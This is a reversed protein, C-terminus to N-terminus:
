HRSRSFLESAILLLGLVAVVSAAGNVMPVTQYKVAIGACAWVAVLVYAIDRVRFLVTAAIAGALAIKIITWAQADIGVDDWGLGIQVASLNAISAVTIWSTYISFPFYLVCREVLTASSIATNLTRYIKILSVLIVVMLLLSLVLLDSHWLVIWISNAACSIIFPLRISALLQNQRQAPLAQWVIFATLGIYILGWISFVYGAPTFFSPYKASVEGTTQGGIPIVNAMGNVIIVALFALINGGWDSIPRQM